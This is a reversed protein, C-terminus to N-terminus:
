KARFLKHLLHYNSYLHASEPGPDLDSTLNEAKQDDRIRIRIWYFAVDKSSDHKSVPGPDQDLTLNEAMQCNRIQIRNFTSDYCREFTFPYPILRIQEPPGAQSSEGCSVRISSSQEWSRTPTRTPTRPPGPLPWPRRSSPRTESTPSKAARRSWSSTPSFRPSGRRPRQAAAAARKRRRSETKKKPRPRRIMGNLSITQHIILYYTITSKFYLLYRIIHGNKQEFFSRRVSSVM